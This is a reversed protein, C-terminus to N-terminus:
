FLSFCAIVMCHISDVCYALFYFVAASIIWDVVWRIGFCQPLANLFLLWLNNWRRETKQVANWVDRNNETCYKYYVRNNELGIIVM